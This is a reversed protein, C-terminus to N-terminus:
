WMRTPNAAFNAVPPTAVVVIKTRTLICIDDITLVVTYSGDQTYTHVPNEDNSTNGDGFNWSYIANPGVQSTNTFEVEAGNISTTFNAEPIPLITIEDILEM